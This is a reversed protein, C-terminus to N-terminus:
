KRGGHNVIFYAEGELFINRNTHNYGSNYKLTSATALYVVSSDPLTIKRKQGPANHLVIWQVAEDRQAQGRRLLWVSCLLLALTAAVSTLWVLRRIRIRAGARGPALRQRFKEYQQNMEPLEPMPLESLEPSESLPNRSILQWEEQLFKDLSERYAEDYLYEKILRLQAVTCNDQLYDLMLQRDIEKSEM